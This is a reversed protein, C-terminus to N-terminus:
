GGSVVSLLEIKDNEKLERDKTLVEDKRIVLFEEANLNLQKLLDKVSTGKLEIEKSDQELESQVTVRM